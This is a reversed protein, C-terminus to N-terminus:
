RLARRESTVCIEAQRWIQSKKQTFFPCSFELHCLASKLVRSPLVGLARAARPSPGRGRRRWPAVCHDGPPAQASSLASSAGPRLPCQGDAPERRPKQRHGLSGEQWSAPLAPACALPPPPGVPLVFNISVSIEKHGAPSALRSVPSNPDMLSPSNPLLQRRPHEPPHGSSVRRGGCFTAEKRARGAGRASWGGAASGQM